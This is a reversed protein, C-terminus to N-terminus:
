FMVSQYLRAIRAATEATVRCPNIQLARMKNGIRVAIEGKTFGERLLQRVKAWTPGAPIIRAATMADKTVLFIMRETRARINKQRGNKVACVTSQSVGSIDSVTGRGIGVRSLSRLHRSAARAPVYGNWDGNRRARLRESEYRSNAARCPVCKCGGM